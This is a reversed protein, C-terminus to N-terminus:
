DGEDNLRRELARLARIIENVVRQLAELDNELHRLAVKVDDLTRILEQM